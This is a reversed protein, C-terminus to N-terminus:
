RAHWAALLDAERQPTLGVGEKLPAEAAGALTEPVPRFRLGAAVARSVDAMHM